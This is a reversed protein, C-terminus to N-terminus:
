GITEMFKKINIFGHGFYNNTFNPLKLPIASEKIKRVLKVSSINGYMNEYYESALLCAAAVMPAAYSTGSRKSFNNTSSPLLFDSGYACVTLDALKPTSTFSSYEALRIPKENLFSYKEWDKDTNRLSEFDDVIEENKLPRLAEVILMRDRIFKDDALDKFYPYFNSEISLGKNGAAFVVVSDNEALADSLAEIFDPDLHYDEEKCTLEHLSQSLSLINNQLSITELIGKGLPHVKSLGAKIAPSARMLERNVDYVFVSNKGGPITGGVFNFTTADGTPSPYVGKTGIFSGIIETMHNSKNRPSEHFYGGIMADYFTEHFELSNDVVGLGWKESNGQLGKVHAYAFGHEEIYDFGSEQVANCEYSLFIVSLLSLMVFCINM